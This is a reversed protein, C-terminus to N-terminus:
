ETKFFDLINKIVLAEHEWPIFHNAGKIEILTTRCDAPLKKMAYPANGFPVLPDKSGHMILVPSHIKEWCPELLAIDKKFYYIEDNSRRLKSPLLAHLVKNRFIRRWHEPSEFEPAVSGALLVLGQCLEPHIGGVLVVIPGGLSHGMWYCPKGNSLQAYANCMLEAQDQVHLTHTTKSKGYGPRDFVIVRYKALLTSDNLYNIYAKWDGPSGHVIVLNPKDAAGNVMCHVTQGNVQLSVSQAVTSEQKVKELSETHKIRACSSAFFLLLLFSAFLRM